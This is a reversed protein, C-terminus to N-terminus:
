SSVGAVDDHIVDFPGVCVNSFVRGFSTIALYRREMFVHRGLSACSARLAVIDPHDWLPMYAEEAALSVMPPTAALGLRRLNGISTQISGPVGRAFDDIITFDEVLRQEGETGPESYKITLLPLANESALYRIVHADLPTMQRIIEAFAPHTSDRTDANMASAILNAYMERLSEDHGAYKLSEFAPGVVNLPPEVIKSPDVGKMKNAVITAIMAEIQEMGWLLGRLPTLALHIARPVLEIEAGLRRMAPALADGYVLPAIKDAAETAKSAAANLLPDIL